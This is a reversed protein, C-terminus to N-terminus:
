PLTAKALWGTNSGPDGSTKLFFVAGPTGDMRVYYDGVDGAINGNPDGTGNFVKGSVNGAAAEYVKATEPVFANDTSGYFDWDVAAYGADTAREVTFHLHDGDTNGSNGSRALLTGPVVQQGVTVRASSRQLHGYVGYTLDHHLIRVENGSGTGRTGIPMDAEVSVIDVVEGEMAAFVETGRPVGFDVAFEAGGTHTGVARGQVCPIRLGGKFPFKYKLDSKTVSAPLKIGLSVGAGTPALDNPTAGDDFVGAYLLATSRPNCPILTGFQPSDANLTIVSEKVAHIPGFDIFDHSRNELEMRFSRDANVTAKLHFMDHYGQHNVLRGITLAQTTTRGSVGQPDAQKVEVEEGDKKVSIDTGNQKAKDSLDKIDQNSMSSKTNSNAVFGKLLEQKANKVEDATVVGDAELSKLVDLGQRLTAVNPDKQAGELVKQAKEKAQDNSLTGSKQADEILKMMGATKALEAAEKGFSQATDLSKQFATLANLQNQNLGTLDRFADGKGLLTLLGQLGTPDPANPANQINVVPNPFDKPQLNGPDARRTDTNLPLIQTNPSDPIPSEEWRWFRSEDKVECSNCKGIVAEAYVGKTPLSVRMPESDEEYYLAKLDVPDKSNVTPDLQFGPAVPMILSNGAVGIIRNEVVSAVSRGNAKGPAVIGDLLMFRREDSMHFWLCKHYYELNENLHHILNNAVDIDEGRPNRLEESNLPTPIFVSDLGVFLDNDIRTNFLTGAFNLTRYRIAGSRVLIKMYKDLFLKIDTADEARVKAEDIRIRIGNIRDRAISVPGSQRLSMQLRANQRFPTVLTVDVNLSQGTETEIVLADLLFEITRPGVLRALEDNSLTRDYYEKLDLRFFKQFFEILANDVPNKPNFFYFEMYLEGQFSVIQQEAFYKEPYGISKYYDETTSEKENQIRELADFGARLAPNFLCRELSSRWRLVKELDFNTIQLPIFLCEQADVFRNHVAFHRVVEFYQITIAHCHNYNAVSESTAQVREGQSVTQIVTSRQSRVANAAQTTRDRISQLSNATSDRHSTQSATSSAKSKGGSIGMLGGYTGGQFVGMVASGWGFGFGGTKATSSGTMNENLTATVVESVDRDRILTNNLSEEYDLTQSNAASERREWDLVAIQKKQGPALPLSYLLDGISYGDPIWEQKFHLLHGHAISAAQYITAKDWNIQNLPTLHARGKNVRAKNPPQVAKDARYDVMLGDLLRADFETFPRGSILPPTAEPSPNATMGARMLITSSTARLDRVAAVAARIMPQRSKITHFQRFVGRPVWVGSLGEGYIDGLDIEDEEEIVDAIIAPETTRVVTQYSFEEFVKKEHFNLESCGDIEGVAGGERSKLDIMLILRQPIRTTVVEVEVNDSNLAKKKGKVLKIPFEARFDDKAVIAKADTVRDIDEADAFQLFSTVFYGGTETRAYAVPLYEHPGIAPDIVSAAILIQYDEMKEDTDDSLVKGKVQYSGTKADIKIATTVVGVKIEANKLDNKNVALSGSSPDGATSGFDIRAFEGQPDKVQYVVESQDLIQNLDLDVIVSRSDAIPYAEEVTYNQKNAYGIVFQNGFFSNAVNPDVPGPLGTAPDIDPLHIPSFKFQLTRFDQPEPQSAGFTVSSSVLTLEAAPISLFSLDAAREVVLGRNLVKDLTEITARSVGKAELAAKVDAFKSLDNINPKM